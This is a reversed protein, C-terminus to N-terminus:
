KRQSLCRVVDDLSMGTARAFALVSQLEHRYREWSVDLEEASSRLLMGLKRRDSERGASKALLAGVAAGISGALAAGAAALGPAGLLKPLEQGAETSRAEHALAARLAAGRPEAEGQEWRSVTRVSVGLRAAWQEQTLGLEERVGRLAEPLGRSRAAM